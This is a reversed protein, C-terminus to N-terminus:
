LGHERAYRLLAFASVSHIIPCSLVREIAESIPMEHVEIMEYDDQPLPDHTLDFALFIHDLQQLVESHRGVCYPEIRAASYGAEERLERQAAENPNSEKDVKGGPLMWIYDKLFPRFERILVVNNDKTFALIHAIDCRHARAKRKIRGDPLPAEEKVIRWGHGSYLEEM